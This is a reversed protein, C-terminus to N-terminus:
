SHEATARATSKTATRMWKGSFTMPFEYLPYRCFGSYGYVPEGFREYQKAGIRRLFDEATPNNNTDIFACNRPILTGNGISSGINVSLVLDFEDNEATATIAMVMPDSAYDAISFRVKCGNMDYYNAM